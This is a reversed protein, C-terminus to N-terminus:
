FHRPTIIEFIDELSIGKPLGGIDEIRESFETVLLSSIQFKLKNELLFKITSQSIFKYQLIHNITQIKDEHERRKNWCNNLGIALERNYEIHDLETNANSIWKISRLYERSSDSFAFHIIMRILLPNNNLNGDCHNKEIQDITMKLNGNNDIIDTFLTALLEPHDFIEYIILRDFKSFSFTKEAEMLDLDVIEHGIIDLIQDVPEMMMKFLEDNDAYMARVTLAWKFIFRTLDSWLQKHSRSIEKKKKKILKLLDVIFTSTYIWTGRPTTTEEEKPIKLFIKNKIRELYEHITQDYNTVHNTVYSIVTNVPAQPMKELLIKSILATLDHYYNGEQTLLDYEKAVRTKPEHVNSSIALETKLNDLIVINSFVDKLLKSSPNHPSSAAVLKQLHEPKRILLTLKIKSHKEKEKKKETSKKEDFHKESSRETSGTSSEREQIEKSRTDDTNIFNSAEIAIFLHFLHLLLM